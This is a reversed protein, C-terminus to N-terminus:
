RQGRRQRSARRRRVEKPDAKLPRYIEVRDGDGVPTDPSVRRGFIGTGNREPELGPFRDLIGSQEIAQKVTTGRDVELPIVVVEEEGGHAVEIRLRQADPAAM